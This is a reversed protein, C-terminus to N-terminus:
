RLVVLVTELDNLNAIPQVSAQRVLGFDGQSTSTVHGLPLGQPLIGDLGSTVVLDGRRANAGAAFFQMNLSAAQGNGNLVGSDGSRAVMAGIASDPDPLLMVTSNTPGVSIVRGVLGGYSLVPDDYKIKQDSGAAIVIQDLWNVPARGVVPVALTKDGRLQTQRLHLLRKLNANEGQAVQLSAVQSQLQTVEAQLQKNEREAQFADGVESVMGVTWRVASNTGVELPLLVTNVVGSVRSVSVRPHVTMSELAVLGLVLIAALYM